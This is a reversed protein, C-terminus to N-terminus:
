LARLVKVFHELGIDAIPKGFPVMVEARFAGTLATGISVHAMVTGHAQELYNAMRKVVPTGYDCGGDTVVFLVRRKHPARKAQALAMRAMHASLPTGGSAAGLLISFDAPNPVRKTALAGARKYGYSNFIETTCSAGVSGASQAIVLGTELAQGMSEGGMSGSADLLICVDTDFGESIERRAFVNPSGAMARSLAGKDLRGAKRSGEREDTENARLARALLARQKSARAAAERMDKSRATAKRDIPANANDPQSRMLDNNRLIDLVLKEVNAGQKPTM